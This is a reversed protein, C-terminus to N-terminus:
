FKFETNLYIYKDPDIADNQSSTQRYNLAAKVGKVPTCELGAYLYNYGDEDVETNPDYIDYRAFVGLTKFLAAEPLVKNLYIDIWASIANSKIDENGAGAGYTRFNADFCIDFMDRYGVRGGASLINHKYDAADEDSAIARNQTGMYYQLILALMSWDKNDSIPTFKAFLNIDKNKNKETVDSYKTGNLISLGAAGLKGKEGLNLMASAGLDATSLWGLFDVVNREVYRRMWLEDAFYLYMTPQLGIRLTLLDEIPKVKWSGYAYKLMFPYGKSVEQSPIVVSDGDSDIVVTSPTKFLDPKIDATIQVSTYDSFKSIATIYTRGIGFRNYSDAGESLDMMWEAYVTGKLSTEAASAGAFFVAIALLVAAKIRLNM